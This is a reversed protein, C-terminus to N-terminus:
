PGHQRREEVGEEERWGRKLGGMVWKKRMEGEREKRKQQGCEVRKNIKLEGKRRIGRRKRM